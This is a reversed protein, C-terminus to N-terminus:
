RRTPGCPVAGPGLLPVARGFPLLALAADPATRARLYRMTGDFDDLLRPMPRLPEDLPLTFDDWHIAVVCRAGVRAVVEDYFTERYGADQTGLGGIGLLVVDASRDALAGDLWGASGQVLLTGLPHSLLVSYSGGEKYATAAAPPVLPADIDGMAMGHPLHRSPLLIVAFAGFRLPEGPEALRMSEEGLGAGRGVNRTSESGVLLAGTRRAVEPADMAHDYHSHVVIVAALSDTGAIQLGRAIADPDPAIAGTLTDWKGPRSFFGDTLLSTQGDSVLLTSVGLFTVRVAPIDTDVRPQLMLDAYPALGPHDNLRWSVWGGTAALLVALVAAVRTLLRRWGM